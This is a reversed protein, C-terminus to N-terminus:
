SAKLQAIEDKVKQIEAELEAVEGPEDEQLKAGALQLMLKETRKRLVEVRKKAKKDM